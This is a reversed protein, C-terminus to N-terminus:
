YDPPFYLISSVDVMRGTWNCVCSAGFQGRAPVVHRQEQKAVGHNCSSNTFISDIVLNRYILSPHGAM